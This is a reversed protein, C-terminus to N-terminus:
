TLAYTPRSLRHSSGYRFTARTSRSHWRTTSVHVTLHPSIVVVYQTPRHFPPGKTSSLRWRNDFRSASISEMRSTCWWSEAKSESRSTVGRGRPVVARGRPVASLGDVHRLDGLQALRARDERRKSVELREVVRRVRLDEGESVEERESVRQSAEERESVRESVEERESVRESVEERESVIESVEERESAEEGESVRKRVEERESM